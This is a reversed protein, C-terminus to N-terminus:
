LPLSFAHRGDSFCFRECHEREAHEVFFFFHELGANAAEGAFADPGVHAGHVFGADESFIQKLCILRKAHEEIKPM